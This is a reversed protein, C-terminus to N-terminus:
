IAAQKRKRTSVFGMVGLGALLMAYTEPEPVAAILGDTSSFTVFHDAGYAKFQAQQSGDCCQELGYINLVHNGADLNLSIAFSQSTNDYNGSWWMDHTKFDYVIGEVFVAGGYRFDVGSRIEWLGANAESVGFNVTSKFAFDANAVGLCVWTQFAMM